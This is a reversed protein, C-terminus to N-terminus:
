SVIPFAVFLLCRFFPFDFGERCLFSLMRNFVNIWIMTALVTNTSM